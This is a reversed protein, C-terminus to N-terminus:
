YSLLDLQIKGKPFARELLVLFQGWSKSARMIGMIQLLHNKLEPQGIGSSLFQHHKDKRRKTIEDTPNLEKLKELVGKPLREYVIDNTYKGIVGPRKSTHLPPWVWKNLRYVEKYFDDPFHKAWKIREESLYLSLLRELENKEREKQYGTAEDVLAIIGVKAFTRILLDAQEAIHLQKPLLANADRAKLYVECIRPLMTAEIGHCIKNGHISQYEIPHLLANKLSDDIFGILNKASLYIPMMSFNDEKKRMWHSGSRMGGLAKATARESFIRTKDELVACELELDNLIKLTGKHTAKLM